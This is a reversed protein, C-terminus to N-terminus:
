PKIVRGVRINEGKSLVILYLGTPLSSVDFVFVDTSILKSLVLAGQYNYLCAKWSIYSSNLPIRIEDKSVIVSKLESNQILIPIEMLGYIGSGDNATAKATIIGNDVATVVGNSNITALGDGNVISWTVTRTTANSPLISAQLQLKIKDTTTVNGGSAVKIIISTVPVIQGSITIAMSGYVGSGDNATAKVTIIGNDAATVLGASSIQAQSTGNDISWTVTKDTANEPLVKVILQLTGDDTSITSINGTGSISIGTVQVKQNSLTINLTGYVGSGDNATAVASVTGNYIATVIGNTSIVAQGTINVISWTVTKNTANSPLVTANLQLTGDDTIISSVGNAGTITISNVAVIQNSINITLTGYIESGDNATARAIVSGNDQATVLGASSIVAKGTGNFISWTITKNLANAPLVTASLQLSGKDTTITSAGGAGTVTIMTVPVLQNSNTIALTGYVGSGDQATAKVTVVGNDLATLLGSSNITALGTSNLLSWTVTKVTANAPFVTASLQLTGNDTTISTVGGAGTVIISTVPGMQNSLTLVLTGSVGSGDNATARATVTGNDLATVLGSADITARGTGNVISWSVTKDTSNGPSVTAYLQLSGHDSTISSSGGAGTVTIGTALIVQNFINLEFYETVGSGDNATAVVTVTGNDIATVMGTSNISADGTGNAIAWTVSKDTANDPLVTAELQLSGNDETIITAGAYGTIIIGTVPVLQNSLDIDITGYVGSGDAATAMVTVSGNDIASLLGTEDIEAQGSGNIVSWTVTKDTANSPFIEASFQLTGNDYDIYTLGGSGTVTIGTVPIIQNSITIVLTGYVGSGDRATARATVTGNDVATVRGTSNITAQGTGNVLSWTVTKNTANSPLISASLQLSGNDTRITTAGGTGRVTIGTVPVIQNSITVVLTGYVGSGDNATARVTVTGNDVATLLGAPSITAHSAGNAISWTVTKNTADAPLVNESLQLTGNDVTITTIGGVGTVIIGSVPIVQNSITIIMTGFVGSGDNATARATVNGNKEATVLGTVSISAVGTGNVISWTVSKDTANAPQISESLQLSGKDTTITTAGSAGTVFIGTVPVIQNSITLILTGSVGSGDNATARVTVTGNDVATVLGTANISAQGTGNEISWTVTKITADVPLIDVSIQLTGNDTFITNAGGAGTVNISTVKLVQNSITLNMTGFIGSGDNATARVTVSGDAIATVLGASNITALGAGTTISWRVSNDTANAPLVAASLQLTGKDVSITSIGGAGTVTIGTVPIMTSSINILFNATVGSGDGATAVATVTGDNVSTVLGSSNITAHGTGDNISWIVSKDTANAPLVESILQLTGGISTIISAGGTGSVLINNVPTVQNSITIVITNFVDSGDTATARVTVSGNDIATLLGTGSVTAIGTGSTISWVVNKNTANVPQISANLQLTGNDNAITTAGGAGSITINTVPIIQNSITIVLTGSIGSGDTASAMATVTGNDQATVLGNSSITAQGTGNTISWTITKNTANSPLIAATLQLSGNNVAISTSGGVGSVSIGTVPIIQNSITIVMTGYVESGDNATAKVTVTGNDMATVLGTSNITARETGNIISWSVTKDSADSPVVITSLQLSGNDTSITTRGGDGTVTIGSVSILQNSITIILNGLVGSGDNATARATVTGNDVATVMGTSNITAQGTGNIISWTVTKDTANAPAVTENLQLTGNDTSISTAGGSGSVTIGTVPIVQKTITVVLNGFVASGDTATARATVSGNDIATLLGNSSISALGAGSVISWTVNKNTADAPLVLANLQLTGNDTNITTAGGTGSVSISTVPVVQNSITILMTGYVGSGDHATARATVTGNDIATVRGTSNISAQGTGNTVSWIVAKDTANGPSVAASLQLTGNDTTITNAGGAGTVTIDAVPIVQSSYIRAGVQWTGNQNATEPDTSGWVADLSLGKQWTSGLNTGYDLRVNPIFNTFDRFNPNVVISHTDYGLARWQDFTMVTGIYNFIPAGDECYFLNYDSEFGTLCAADYIFINYIQHKTYFINNKIKTGTSVGNPTLDTNTYVDILGRWTGVGPGAYMVQDSYLTNNYINVGNMGKVVVSVAQANKVINYAVGGSTNTFGNSKRILGMPVRDLYNYMLVANRNYGSFVGHTISSPDTGNWTFRNGTLLEGELNNNSGAPDEDGAQLMYGSANVSTISNNRFTFTTPQNRPIYVGEWFGTETNNFVQGEITLVTQSLITFSNILLLFILTIQKM